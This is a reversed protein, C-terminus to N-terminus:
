RMRLMSEKKLEWILNNGLTLQSKIKSKDFLTICRNFLKKDESIQQKIRSLQHLQEEQSVGSRNGM